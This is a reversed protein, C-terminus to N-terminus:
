KIFIKATFEKLKIDFKEENLDIKESNLAEKYNGIFNKDIKIKYIGEKGFNLIVIAKKDGESRTYAIVRKANVIKGNKEELVEVFDLNDSKFLELNEKRIKALKKYQELLSGEVKDQEEVSIGDIEKNYLATWRTMGEGKNDKYWEFPARRGQDGDVGEGKAGIEDGYYLTPMGNLTYILSAFVKLRPEPIYNPFRDLDHNSMFRAFQTGKSFEERQQEIIKKIDSMVGSTMSGQVPFDFVTDMENNFYPKMAELDVWAEGILLAEKNFDKLKSNFLKWYNHSPGRVYDLRYGDVGDNLDGDGNPDMWYKAIELHYNLVEPNNTNWAPMKSSITERRKADDRFYWDHYITNEINSFYFWRDYKSDQNGYADRFHEEKNSAHNLVLDLVIKINRKHAEKVMNFFDENTGYDPNIKKYDKIDYGHYSPSDFIPTLWIIDVGLEKLYDLKTTLGKLDGKGDGDTDYFSRLFIEYVVKGKAWEPFSYVNLNNIDLKEEEGTKLQENSIIKKDKIEWKESFNAFMFEKYHNTTIENTKTNVLIDSNKFEYLKLSEDSNGTIIIASNNLNYLNPYFYTAGYKKENYVAVNKINIKEGDAIIPLYEEMAKLVKNNSVNGILVLNHELLEEKGVERDKLIKADLDYTKKVFSSIGKAVIYAGRSKEAYVILLNEYKNKSRLISSEPLEGTFNITLDKVKSVEKVKLVEVNEVNKKALENSSCSVLLVLLMISLIIKKM